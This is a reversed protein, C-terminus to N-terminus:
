TIPGDGVGDEPPAILVVPYAGDRSHVRVRFGWDRLTQVGQPALTGWNIVRGPRDLDHFGFGIGEAPDVSAPADLVRRAWESLSLDGRAAPSWEIVVACSVGQAPPTGDVPRPAAM